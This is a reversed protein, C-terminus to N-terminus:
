EKIKVMEGEYEGSGSAVPVTFLEHTEGSVPADLKCEFDWYEAETDPVFYAILTYNANATVTYVAEQSVTVGNQTWYSFKYGSAAKAYVKRVSGAQVTLQTLASNIVNPDFSVAGQSLDLTETKAVLTFTDGTQPQLVVEITENKGNITFTGSQPIYGEKTVEWSLVQGNVGEKSKQVVGDIKVIADEPQPAITVTYTQGPNPDIELVVPLTENKGNIVYSGTKPLYGYKSVSWNMVTGNVGSASNGKVGNISVTADAPTPAITLIYESGGGGGLSWFEVREDLITIVGNNNRLRAIFYENAEKSPEIGIAPEPVLSLQYTEYTYLGELQEDTFRRGMPVSGLIIVKLQSEAQFPYGSSLVLNNSNIIDVVQYVANNKPESGDEKVFRLATAVNSQGRVIGSFDVTGSVKGSTDIQVYGPEWNHTAPGVKLWYYVGDNPIPFDVQNDVKYGVLNLDIVYGGTMNVTGFTTSESVRFAAGPRGGPSVLGYSVSSSLIGKILPNDNLFGIMRNLEEKELFTNRHINIKNM